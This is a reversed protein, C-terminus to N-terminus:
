SDGLLTMPIEISTMQGLKPVLEPHDDYTGLLGAADQSTGPSSVYSSPMKLLSRVEIDSLCTRETLITCPNTLRMRPTPVM